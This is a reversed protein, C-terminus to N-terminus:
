EAAPRSFQSADINDVNLTRATVTTTQMLEGNELNRTESKSRFLVGDIEEYSLIFSEQRVETSDLDPHLASTEVSSAQLFTDKDFFLHESFGDPATREVEWFASGNREASGVLELKYGLGPLEHLGYLNGIVGRKLAADGGPSLDAVEGDNFMQWGGDPGLAETFVRNGEAFVDIRMFGERTARYHGTVTFSPEVILLEIDVNRISEIAEKGGRAEANRDILTELTIESAPSCATFIISILISFAIRVHM